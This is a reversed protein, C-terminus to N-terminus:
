LPAVTAVTSTIILAEPDLSHPSQIVTENGHLYFYVDELHALLSLCYFVRSLFSLKTFHAVKTHQALSGESRVNATPAVAASLLLWLSLRCFTPM